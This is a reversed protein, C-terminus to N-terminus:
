QSASGANPYNRLDMIYNSFSGNQPYLRLMREKTARIQELRRRVRVAPRMPRPERCVVQQAVLAEERPHQQAEGEDQREQGPGPAEPQLPAAGM